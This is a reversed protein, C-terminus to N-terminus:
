GLLELIFIEQNNGIKKNKGISIYFFLHCGGGVNHMGLLFYSYNVLFLTM